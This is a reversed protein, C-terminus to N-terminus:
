GARSLLYRHLIRAANFTSATVHHDVLGIFPEILLRELFRLFIVVRNGRSTLRM